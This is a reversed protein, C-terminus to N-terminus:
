QVASLSLEPVLAGKSQMCSKWASGPVGNDLISSTAYEVSRTQTSTSAGEQASTVYPVATWRVSMSHGEASLKASKDRIDKTCQHASEDVFHYKQEPASQPTHATCGAFLLCTFSLLCIKKFM